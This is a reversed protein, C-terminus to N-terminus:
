EKEILGNSAGEGEVFDDPSEVEKGLVLADEITEVEAQLAREKEALRTADRALRETEQHILKMTRASHNIILYRFISPTVKLFHEVESIVEAPARFQSVLYYGYQRDDIPYTLKKKGWKELNVIEANRTKLLDLYKTIVEEQKEPDLQADLIFTLEYHKM